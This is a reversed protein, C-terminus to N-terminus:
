DTEWASKYNLDGDKASCLKPGGKGEPFRQNRCGFAATCEDLRNKYPCRRLSLEGAQEVMRGFLETIRDLRAQYDAPDIRAPEGDGRPEPEPAL